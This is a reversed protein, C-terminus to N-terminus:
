KWSYIFVRSLHCIKLDELFFWCTNHLQIKWEYISKDHIFHNLVEHNKLDLKAIFPLFKKQIEILQDTTKYFIAEDHRLFQNSCAGVCPSPNGRFNGIWKLSKKMALFVLNFSTLVCNLNLTVNLHKWNGFCAEVSIYVWM